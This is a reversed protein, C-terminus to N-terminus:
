EIPMVEGELYDDDSANLVEQLLLKDKFDKEPDFAIEEDLKKREIDKICGGLPGVFLPCVFIGSGDDLNELEEKTFCDRPDYGRQACGVFEKKTLKLSSM